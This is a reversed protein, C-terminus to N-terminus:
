WSGDPSHTIQPFQSMICVGIGTNDVTVVGVISAVVVATDETLVVFVDSFDTVVEAVWVVAVTIVVALSALTEVVYEVSALVERNIDVWNVSLVIVVIFLEWDACGVSILLVLSVVFIVSSIVVFVAFGVVVTAVLVIEVDVKVDETGLGEADAVAWVDSFVSNVDDVAL